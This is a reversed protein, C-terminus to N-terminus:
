QFLEKVVGAFIEIKVNGAKKLAFAMQGDTSQCKKVFYNFFLNPFAAFLANDKCGSQL